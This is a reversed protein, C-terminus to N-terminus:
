KRARPVAAKKLPRLYRLTAAFYVTAAAVELAGLAAGPQPDSMARVTGEAVFLLILMSSWQLTYNDADVVRKYLFALVLLKCLALVYGPSRDAQPALVLGASVLMLAALSALAVSRLVRPSM